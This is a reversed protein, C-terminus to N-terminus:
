RLAEPFGNHEIGDLLRGARNDSPKRARERKSHCTTCVAQVSEHHDVDYGNSHDYEHRRRGPKWMHGCDTCPLDNPRPLVGKAVLHNVRRRAQKKDGSRAPIPKPGFSKRASAPIPQYTSRNRANACSRCRADRQDGRGRDINFCERSLWQRCSFCHKMGAALRARYVALSIGLRTAAIKQVGEFSGM